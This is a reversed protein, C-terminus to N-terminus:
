GGWALVLSLIGVVLLLACFAAALIGFLFLGKRARNARYQLFSVASLGGCAPALLLGPIGHLPEGTALNYTTLFVILVMYAVGMWALARKAPSAPTYPERPQQEEQEDPRNPNDM